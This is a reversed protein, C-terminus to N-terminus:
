LNERVVHPNALGDGACGSGPACWGILYMISLYCSPAGAALEDPAQDRVRGAFFDGLAYAEQTWIRLIESIAASGIREFESGPLFFIRNPSKM